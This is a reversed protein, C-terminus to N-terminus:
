PKLKFACTSIAADPNTSFKTILAYKQHKISLKYVFPTNSLIALYDNTKPQKLSNKNCM